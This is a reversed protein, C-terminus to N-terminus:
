QNKKETWLYIPYIFESHKKVLDKIRRISRSSSLSKTRRGLPTVNVDRTVIFSGGPHSEWIYQQDDNHKTTVIVKETMSVGVGAEGQLADM